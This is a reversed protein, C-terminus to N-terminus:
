LTNLFIPIVEYMKVAIAFIVLIITWIFMGAITAVIQEGIDEDFTNLIKNGMFYAGGLFIIMGIITLIIAM